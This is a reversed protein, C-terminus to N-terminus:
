AQKSEETTKAALVRSRAVIEEERSPLWDTTVLRGKWTETRVGNHICYDITSRRSFENYEEHTLYVPENATILSELKDLDLLDVPKPEDAVLVDEWQGAAFAARRSDGYDSNSIILTGTGDVSFTKTDLFVSERSSRKTKVKIM